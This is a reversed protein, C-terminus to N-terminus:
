KSGFVLRGERQEEPPIAPRANSRSMLNSPDSAFYEGWEGGPMVARSPDKKINRQEELIDKSLNPYDTNSEAIRLYCRFDYIEGSGGSHWTDLDWDSPNSHMIAKGNKDYLTRNEIIHDAILAMDLEEEDRRDYYRSVLDYGLVGSFLVFIDENVEKGLCKQLLSGVFGFFAITNVMNKLISNTNNRASDAKNKLEQLREQRVGNQREELSKKIYPVFRDYIAHRECPRTTEDMLKKLNCILM